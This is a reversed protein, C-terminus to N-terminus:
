LRTVLSALLLRSSPLSFSLDALEVHHQKEPINKQCVNTPDGMLITDTNMRITKSITYTGPPIYVVQCIPM